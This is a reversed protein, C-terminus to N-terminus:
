ALAERLAPPAQPWLEPHFAMLAQRSAQKGTADRHPLDVRGKEAARDVPLEREGMWAAGAAIQEIQSTSLPMNLM